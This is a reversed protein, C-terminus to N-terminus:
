FTSKCICQIEFRSLDTDNSVLLKVIITGVIFSLGHQVHQVLITQTGENDVSSNKPRKSIHSAVFYLNNMQLSV